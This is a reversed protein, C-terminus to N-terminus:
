TRMKGGASKGTVYWTNSKAVLGHPYIRREFKEGNAREYVFEIEEDEWVAKQISPLHALSEQVQFWGAPDIYVRQRLREAEQRQLTPLAALLKLYSNEVARDLGIDGLPGAGSSIVLSQIESKTLDTLSVRYDEDLFVGGQPGCHTYIPVGALCLADIDRYVTRVSVELIGALEEATMRGRTHLLLMMSLLRDARM